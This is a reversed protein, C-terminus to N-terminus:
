KEGPNIQVRNRILEKIRTNVLNPVYWELGIDSHNRIFEELNDADIRTLQVTPNKTTDTNQQNHAQDQVIEPDAPTQQHGANEETRHAGTMARTMVGVQNEAM